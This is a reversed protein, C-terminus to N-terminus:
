KGDRNVSDWGDCAEDYVVPASERAGCWNCETGREIGIRGVEDCSHMWFKTNQTDRWIRPSQILKFRLAGVVLAFIGGFIYFWASM